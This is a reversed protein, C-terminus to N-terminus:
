LNDLYGTRTGPVKDCLRQNPGQLEVAALECGDARIWSGLDLSSHGHNRLRSRMAFQMQSRAIYGLDYPM